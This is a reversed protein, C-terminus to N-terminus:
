SNNKIYIEASKNQDQFVSVSKNNNISSQKVRKNESAELSKFKDLDVKILEYCKHTCVIEDLVRASIADYNKAEYLDWVTKGSEFKKDNLYKNLIHSKTKPYLFNNPSNFTAISLQSLDVVRFKNQFSFAEANTLIKYRKFLEFIIPIDSSTIGIGCLIPAIMGNHANHVTDLANKLLVYISELLKQESYHEWLWLSRIKNIVKAEILGFDKEPNAFLFSGGILKCSKDWPNYCFGHKSRSSAPVYFELDFFIIRCKNLKVQTHRM